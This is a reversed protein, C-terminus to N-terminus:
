KTVPAVKDMKRAYARRSALSRRKAPRMSKVYERALQLTIYKSYFEENEQMFRVRVMTNGLRVADRVNQDIGQWSDAITDEPFWRGM